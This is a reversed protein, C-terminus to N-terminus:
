EQASRIFPNAHASAVLSILLIGNLPCRVAAGLADKTSSSLKPIPLCARLNLHHATTAARRSVRTVRRFVVCGCRCQGGWCRCLGTALSRASISTCGDPKSSAQFSSCVHLGADFPLEHIVLVLITLALPRVYPNPVNHICHIYM